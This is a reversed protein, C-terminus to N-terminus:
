YLQGPLATLWSMSDLGLQLESPNFLDLASANDDDIAAEYDAMDLNSPNRNFEWNQLNSGQTNFVLQPDFYVSETAASPNDEGQNVLICAEQQGWETEQDHGTRRRRQDDRLQQIEQRHQPVQEFLIDLSAACRAAHKSLSSFENLMNMVRHWGGMVVKESVEVMISPHLRATILVAAATYIFFVSFWWGPLLAEFEGLEKGAITAEIFDITELAIEVCSVSCQLAIKWPLKKDFSPKSGGFSCCFKALVPRFLLLRIHRHRLFLINTQRQHKISKKAPGLEHRLHHPLGRSLSWLSNDMEMIVGVAKAGLSGFYPTFADDDRSTEPSTNAHNYLTLWIENMVEYLKLAEIFFHLSDQCTERESTKCPEIYCRCTNSGSHASPHPVSAAAQPTIMAPRGLTMSVSRDIFVCSHWVRRLVERQQETSADASTSPLDLGLSQAHRVALGIFMWCEQPDNTSQLYHGLLLFCQVAILSHSQLVRLDLTERARQYYVDANKTRETPVAAQDMICAISFVVNILCLFTRGDEGLDEGTWLRQYLREVEEWDLIPYVYLRRYTALLYDARQRSPLVYNQFQRVQKNSPWLETQSQRASTKESPRQLSPRASSSQVNLLHKIQRVFTKASSDGGCTRSPSQHENDIMGMLTMHDDTCDGDDDVGSPVHLALSRPSTGTRAAQKPDQLFADNSRGELEDIRRRLQNLAVQSM